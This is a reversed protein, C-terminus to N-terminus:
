RLYELSEITRRYRAVALAILFFLYVAGLAVLIGFNKRIFHKDGLQPDFAGRILTRRTM